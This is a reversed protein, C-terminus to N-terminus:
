YGGVLGGEILRCSNNPITLVGGVSIIEQLCDLVIEMDGWLGDAYNGKWGLLDSHEAVISEIQAFRAEFQDQTTPDEASVQVYLDRLLERALELNAAQAALEEATTEVAARQSALQAELQVVREGLEEKQQSSTEVESRLEDVQAQLDSVAQTQSCAATLVVTAALLLRRQGKPRM